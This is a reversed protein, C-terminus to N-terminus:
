KNSSFVLRWQWARRQIVEIGGVLYRSLLESQAVIVEKLIEQLENNVIMTDHGDWSGHRRFLFDTAARSSPDRTGIGSIARINTHQAPLSRRSPSIV